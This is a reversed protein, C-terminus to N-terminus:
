LGSGGLMSMMPGAMQALKAFDLTNLANGIGNGGGGGGSNSGGSLNSGGNASSPPPTPARLRPRGHHQAPPAAGSAASSSSAGGSPPGQIPASAAAGNGGGSMRNGIVHMAASALLMWGLQILPDSMVTSGSSGWYRTYLKSLPVDYRSSALDRSLSTSWGDLDVYKKSMVLPASMEIGGSLVRLGDRLFETGAAQDVSQRAQYLTLQIDSLASSPGVNLAPKVLTPHNCQLTHLEGLLVAREDAMTDADREVHSARSARSARSQPSSSRRLSPSCPAQLHHGLPLPPSPPKKAPPPAASSASRNASSRSAGSSTPKRRHSRSTARRERTPQPPPPSPPPFSAVSRASKVSRASRASRASQASVDSAISQLLAPPEPARQTKKKMPPPVDADLSATSSLSFVEQVNKAPGKDQLPPSTLPPRRTWEVRNPNSAVRFLAAQSPTVGKGKVDM